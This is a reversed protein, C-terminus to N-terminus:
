KAVPKSQYHIFKDGVTSHMAGATASILGNFYIDCNMFAVEDNFDNIRAQREVRRGMGQRVATRLISRNTYATCPQAQHSTEGVLYMIAAAVVMIM